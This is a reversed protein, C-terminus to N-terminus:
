GTLHGVSFSPAGAAGWQEGPTIGKKEQSYWWHGSCLAFCDYFDANQTQKM